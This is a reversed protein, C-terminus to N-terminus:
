WVWGDDDAGGEARTAYPNASADERFERFPDAPDFGVASAAPNVADARGDAVSASPTPTPTPTADLEDFRKQLGEEAWDDISPHVSCETRVHISVLSKTASLGYYVGDPRVARLVVSQDGTPDTWDVTRTVTFSESKWYATLKDAIPHPDPEFAAHYVVAALQHARKSGVTGCPSLGVRGAAPDWTRSKDLPTDDKWDLTDGTAAIAANTLDAWQTLLQTITKQPTGPSQPVPGSLAPVSM